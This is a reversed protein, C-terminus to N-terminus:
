TAWTPRPTGSGLRDGSRHRVLAPLQVHVAGPRGARVLAPGWTTDEVDGDSHRYNYRLFAPIDTGRDKQPAWRGGFTDYLSGIDHDRGWGGPRLLLQMTGNLEPVKIQGNIMALPRRTDENEPELFARWRFDYGQVIDMAQFFDSEGWVVQQRGVTFGLREGLDFAV